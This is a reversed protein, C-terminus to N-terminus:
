RLAEGYFYTSGALVLAAVLDPAELGLTLLQVAGSSQGCFSARALGLARCLAITDRAFQRHNMAPLGGPNAGRGHGRLDPVVLRHHAGLADLQAQWLAATGTFGHLLVLPPGDPRGHEEYYMSLDGALAHPM